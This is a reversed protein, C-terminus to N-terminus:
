SFIPVRVPPQDNTTRCIVGGGYFGYMNGGGEYGGVASATDGNNFWVARLGGSMGPEFQSTWTTGSNSTSLVTGTVGVVTANLTNRLCVGVLGKTTGSTQLTCGSQANMEEAYLVLTVASLLLTSTNM